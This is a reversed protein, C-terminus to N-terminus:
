PRSNATTFRGQDYGQWSGGTAALRLTRSAFRPFHHTRAGHVWPRPTSDKPVRIATRSRNAYRVMERVNRAEGVRRRLVHRLCHCCNALNHDLGTSEKASAAAFLCTRTGLTVHRVACANGARTRSRHSFFTRLYSQTTRPSRHVGLGVVGGEQNARSPLGSFGHAFGPSIAPPHIPPHISSGGGWRGYWTWM